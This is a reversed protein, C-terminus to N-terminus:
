IQKYSRIAMVSKHTKSILVANRAQGDRRLSGVLLDAPPWSRSRRSCFAFWRSIRGEPNPHGAISNESAANAAVGLLLSTLERVIIPQQAVGDVDPFFEPAVLRQAAWPHPLRTSM